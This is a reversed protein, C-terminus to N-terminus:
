IITIEGGRDMSLISTRRRDMSLYYTGGGGWDGTRGGGGRSFGPGEGPRYNFAEIALSHGDRERQSSRFWFPKVAIVLAAVLLLILKM